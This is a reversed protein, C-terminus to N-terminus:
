LSPLKGSFRIIMKARKEHLGLCQILEAIEEWSAKVADEPTPWRELFDWLVNKGM